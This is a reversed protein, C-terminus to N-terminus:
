NKFKAGEHVWYCWAVGFIATFELPLHHLNSWISPCIMINQIRCIYALIIIDSYLLERAYSVLCKLFYKAAHIKQKGCIIYGWLLPYLPLLKEIWLLIPLPLDSLHIFSINGKGTSLGGIQYMSRDSNTLRCLVSYGPTKLM